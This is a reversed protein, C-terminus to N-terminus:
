HVSSSISERKMPNVSLVPINSTEVVKLSLDGVFMEGISLDKKNMQIIIDCDNNNAYNVIAEAVNNSAVSKNTCNVGRDKIFKKVQNLYPLLENEYKEDSPSFVSIIKITANYYKAFQVATGVKERSEASLDIHILINRCNNRSDVSRITIIPCPAQKIFKGVNTVGMFSRFRVQTDLGIVILACELEEATKDILEYIDGKINLFEAKLGSEKTIKDVIEELDKQHDVNSNPSAHMLIIKSKTFKALNYSQEIAILSQKSFDIPILISSNEKILM